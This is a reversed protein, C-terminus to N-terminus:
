QFGNGHHITDDWDFQSIYKEALEFLSDKQSSSLTKNDTFKFSCICAKSDYFIEAIYHALGQVATEKTFNLMEVIEYAQGYRSIITIGFADLNSPEVQTAKDAFYDKQKPETKKM